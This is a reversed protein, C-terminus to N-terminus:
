QPAERSDSTPIRLFAGLCELVGASYNSWRELAGQSWYEMAGPYLSGTQDEFPPEFHSRQLTGALSQCDNLAM